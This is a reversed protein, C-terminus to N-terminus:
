LVEGAKTLAKRAALAALEQLHPHDVSALMMKLAAILDPTAAIMQTDGAKFTRAVLVRPNLHQRVYRDSGFWPGTSRELSLLTEM